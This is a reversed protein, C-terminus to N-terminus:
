DVNVGFICSKNFNVKLGSILEFGRLVVKMTWLNHFSATGLLLTDDAYQLHSFSRSTDYEFGIFRGIVGARDMLGSLGEAVTLFLFPALPDGQRLGKQLPIEVSPSGNVLVSVNGSFVCARIWRLWKGPFGMRGMMYKLFDWNISDYAKEFDVM